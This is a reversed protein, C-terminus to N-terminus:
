CKLSLFYIILRNIETLNTLTRQYEQIGRELAELSLTVPLTAQVVAEKKEAVGPVPHPLKNQTFSESKM